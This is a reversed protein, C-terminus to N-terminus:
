GRIEGSFEIGILNEGRSSLCYRVTGSGSILLEPVDFLVRSNLPVPEPSNLALGEASINVLRVNLANEMAHVGSWGLKLMANGPQRTHRRSHKRPAIGQLAKGAWLTSETYAEGIVSAPIGSLEALGSVEGWNGSEWATVLRYISRLPDDSPARDLLAASIGSAVNALKLATELPLDILADLLSFLGM